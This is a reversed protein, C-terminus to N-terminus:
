HQEKLNRRNGPKQKGKKQRRRLSFLRREVTITCASGMMRGGGGGDAGPGTLLLRGAAGRWPRVNALAFADIWRRVLAVMAEGRGRADQAGFVPALLGRQRAWRWFFGGLFGSGRHSVQGGGVDRVEHIGGYALACFSLRYDPGTGELVALLPFPRHNDLDWALGVPAMHSLDALALFPDLEGNPDSARDGLGQRHGCPDVNQQGTPIFSYSAATTATAPGRNEETPREAQADM